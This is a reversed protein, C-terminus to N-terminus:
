NGIRCKWACPYFRRRVRSERGIRSLGESPRGLVNPICQSCIRLVPPRLPWVFPEIWGTESFRSRIEQMFCVRGASSHQTWSRLMRMMEHLTQGLMVAYTHKHQLSQPNAPTTTKWFYINCNPLRFSHWFCLLFLLVRAAGRVARVHGHSYLNPGSPIRTISRRLRARNETKSKRTNDDYTRRQAHLHACIYRWTLIYNTYDDYLLM